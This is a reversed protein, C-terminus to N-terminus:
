CNYAMVRGVKSGTTTTTTSNSPAPGFDWKVYRIDTSTLLPFEYRPNKISAQNGSTQGVFGWDFYVRDAKAAQVKIYKWVGSKDPWPLVEVALTKIPQVHGLDLVLTQSADNAAFTYRTEGSPLVPKRDRKDTLLNTKALAINQGALSSSTELIKAGDTITAANNKSSCVFDLHAL